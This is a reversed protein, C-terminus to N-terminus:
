FLTAQSTEQNIRDVADRLYEPDLEIGVLHIKAYHCAIAISGSGLHTDLVRFGPQAFDRLLRDYIGVPKQAPHIRGVYDRNALPDHTYVLANRDHSTAALEAEAYSRGQFGAGKNWVVFGMTPWVEPFYNGGWVIWEKAVRKLEQFYEPGPTTTDWDKRPLDNNGKHGVNGGSMGIGYPPDVIALQFYGDPFERMVTMCDGLRLDLYPSHLKSM